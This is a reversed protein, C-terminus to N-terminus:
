KQRRQGTEHHPQLPIFDNRKHPIPPTLETLLLNCWLRQTAVAAHISFELTKRTAINEM